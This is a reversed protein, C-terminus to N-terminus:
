TWIILFTWKRIVCYKLVYNLGLNWKKRWIEVIMFGGFWGALIGGVFGMMGVCSIWGWIKLFM